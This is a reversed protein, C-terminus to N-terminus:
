TNLDAVIYAVSPLSQLPAPIEAEIDVADVRLGRAAAYLSIFGQGCGLDLLTKATPHIKLLSEYPYKMNSLPDKHSASRSRVAKGLRVKYM